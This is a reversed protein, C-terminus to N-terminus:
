GNRTAIANETGKLSMYLEGGRGCPWAEYFAYNRKNLAFSTIPQLRKRDYFKNPLLLAEVVPKYWLGAYLRGRTKAVRFATLELFIPISSM